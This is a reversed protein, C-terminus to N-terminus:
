AEGGVYRFVQVRKNYSDTVYITVGDAAIFIGTPLWFEGYGGGQTGFNLLYEGKENFVQVTHFLADVVYIHGYRDTAVGKPRAQFGTSDGKKGFQALYEGETSLIQVRFNLSDSVILRSDDIWLLTPYNFEGKGDGRKGISRILQGQPDYVKIHHKATDVVYLERSKVDLAIGTPQAPMISLKVPEAFNKHKEIKHLGLVSDSVFVSEADGSLAVPSVMQAGRQLLILQHQSNEVNFRHVGGVGPDAVYVTGDELVLVDMPKVISILSYGFLYDKLIAFFSKDIGLDAALHFERIFTIRSKEPPQPWLLEPYSRAASTRPWWSCGQLILILSLLIWIIRQM